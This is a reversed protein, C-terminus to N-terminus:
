SSKVNPIKLRNHQSNAYRCDPEGTNWSHGTRPIMKIAKADLPEIDIFLTWQEPSDQRTPKQNSMEQRKTLRPISSRM